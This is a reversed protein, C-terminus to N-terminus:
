RKMRQLGGRALSRWLWELPGYRYRTLWPQAWLLMLVWMAFVVPWLAIRSVHGFFGFGYGYFLTTMLISTGLYNTFAAQGTAAVRKIFKQHSIRGILLILLAAYGVTLM